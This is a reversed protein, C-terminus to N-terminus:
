AMAQKKHKDYIYGIGSFDGTQANMGPGPLLQGLDQVQQNPGERPLDFPTRNIIMFAADYIRVTNFEGIETQQCFISRYSGLLLIVALCASSCSYKLSWSITCHGALHAQRQMPMQVLQTVRDSMGKKFAQVRQM